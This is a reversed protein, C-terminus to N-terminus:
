EESAGNPFVIFGHEIDWAVDRRYKFRDEADDGELAVCADLYTGVTMEGADILIQLRAAAKSGKRKPNSHVPIVPGGDEAAVTNANVIATNIQIIEDEGFIARSKKAVPAPAAAVLADFDRQQVLFGFDFSAKVGSEITVDELMLVWGGETMKREVRKIAAPRDAFKKIRMDIDTISNYVTVLQGLSLDAVPLKTITKTM